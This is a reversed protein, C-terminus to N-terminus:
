DPGARAKSLAPSKQAMGPQNGANDPILISLYSDAAKNIYNM